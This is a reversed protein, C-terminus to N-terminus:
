KKIIPFYIPYYYVPYVFNPRPNIYYYYYSNHKPKNIQNNKIKTEKAEEKPGETDLKREETEVNRTLVKEENKEINEEILQDESEIEKSKKKNQYVIKEENKEFVEDIGSNIKPYYDEVFPEMEMIESDITQSVTPIKLKTGPILKNWNKIHRNEEVLEDKNLDYLFLIKDLTEGVQIIHFKM